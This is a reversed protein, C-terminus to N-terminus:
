QTKLTNCFFLRFIRTKTPGFLPCHALPSIITKGKIVLSKVLGIVQYAILFERIAGSGRAPFPRFGGALRKKATTLIMM